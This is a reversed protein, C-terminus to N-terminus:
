VGNPREQPRTPTALARWVGDLKWYSGPEPLSGAGSYQVRQGTM